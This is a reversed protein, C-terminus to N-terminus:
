GAPASAPTTSASPLRFQRIAPVAATVGLVVLLTLLGGTFASVGVGWWAAVVGSEFQGLQPGGNIFVSNVASVRGRLADPTVIQNITGRLVSSVTDGVGMAGLLLVALWYSQSLAFAMACLSYFTVGLLVWRGARKPQGIFGLALSGSLAGISSAAYLPGLGAAGVQFIDRAYVPLLARPSGFFNAGFDLVMLSLILPQGRVFALGEGLAAFTVRGRGSRSQRARILLLALAMVLRSLADGAYCCIPGAAALLLGGLSPGIIYGAQRQSTALAIGSALDERPVLNPVYAQRAPNELATFLALLASAIYLVAPTIAGAITLAVLAGAVGLQAVQTSIMLRRRDMADALLGGFLTLGMQPIARALGLLGIQLPSNTLEYIQWAMAVSTFQTGMVAFAQGAWFARFDHHRLAPPLRSPRNAM